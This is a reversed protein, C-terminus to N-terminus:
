EATTRIVRVEAVACGIVSRVHEPFRGTVAGSRPVDRERVGPWWLDVSCECRPFPLYQDTDILSCVAAGERGAAVGDGHQGAADVIHPATVTISWVLTSPLNVRLIVRHGVKDVVM